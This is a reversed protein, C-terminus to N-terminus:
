NEICSPCNFNEIPCQNTPEGGGAVGDLEDDDLETAAFEDINLDKREEDPM